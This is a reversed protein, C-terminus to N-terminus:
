YMQEYGVKTFTDEFVLKNRKYIKVSATGSLSEFVDLNMLAKQSPGVLTVTHTSHAEIMIKTNGKSVIITNDKITVRSFNGTYFHYKKHQTNLVLLFGKIQFFLFPIKGVSFSILSNNQSHNSQIWVWKVPFKSGYTKEIYISGEVEVENMYGKGVGNLYIVEQFCELPLKSMYGMASKNPLIDNLKITHNIEIDLYFQAVDIHIKNNTIYNKAISITNGEAKFEDVSYRYYSSQESDQHFVQIFAHPDKTNKTLAFIIAYNSESNTFRFYWGEFYNNQRLNQYQFTKM